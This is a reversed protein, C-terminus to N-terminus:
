VEKRQMAVYENYAEITNRCICHGRKILDCVTFSLIEYMAANIDRRALNRLESVGDYTREYSTCDAVYIIKELLSMSKRGSTHYRVANIVNADTISFKEQIYISGAISHWLNREAKETEDLMTASDKIIKLQKEKDMEKVADHLMGALYATETDFSYIEALEKSLKAVNCIHVFLRPSVSQEIENLIRDASFMDPVIFGKKM